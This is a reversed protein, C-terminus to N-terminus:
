QKKTHNLVNIPGFLDIHLCKLLILNSNISKTKHSVRPQKEKQFASFKDVVYFVM